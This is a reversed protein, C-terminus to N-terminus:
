RGYSQAASSGLSRRRGRPDGGSRRPVRGGGRDDAAGSTPSQTDAQQLRQAIREPDFRLRPRPGSGLRQAGLEDAHAYVWERDVQWREAVQAASLLRGSTKREPTAAAPRRDADKLLDAVRHALQDITEEDLRVVPVPGPDDPASM